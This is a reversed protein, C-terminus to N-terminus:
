ALSLLCNSARRACTVAPDSSCSSFSSIKCCNCLCGHTCCAHAARPPSPPTPRPHHSTSHLHAHCSTHAHYSTQSAHSSHTILSFQSQWMCITPQEPGYCVARLRPKPNIPIRSFNHADAQPINKHKHTNTHAHTRAHM